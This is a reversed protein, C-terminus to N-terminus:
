FKDNYIKNYIAGVPSQRRTIFKRNPHQGEPAPKM